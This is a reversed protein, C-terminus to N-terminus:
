YEQCFEITLLIYKVNNDYIFKYYRFGKLDL